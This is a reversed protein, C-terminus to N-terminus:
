REGNLVEQVTKPFPILKLETKSIWKYNEVSIVGDLQLDYFKFHVLQHSLKQSISLSCSQLNIKIGTKECFLKNLLLMDADTDTEILVPEYLQQWIDKQTRQRLLISGEHSVIFYNFWRQKIKNKKLKVPLENQQNAQYAMCHIRYFCNSCKPVPTCVTAGFDMIAQNYEGANSTPLLEKSLRTFLKKGEATDTPTHDNYIRSLVRYVNGDLVAFPLNFAFSAIAAATYSGIGKLSLIEEYNSPFVGNKEKYLYQATELLNRCRSYYGLGEWLKFVVDVEATALDKLTPFVTIFNEYYKLGQDVRTQQLIIESIWIKYPDKEGKWPMQRNNQTKHWLLLQSVFLTNNRFKTLM